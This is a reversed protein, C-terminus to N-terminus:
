GHDHRSVLTTRLDGAAAISPGATPVEHPLLDALKIALHISLRDEGDALSIGLMRELNSLRWYVTTRHIHLSAATKQANAGAALYARLTAEYIENGPEWLVSVGPCLRELSPKSREIFQFTAYVGLESWDAVGQFSSVTAAVEAAFRANGLVEKVRALEDVTSVGMAHDPSVSRLARAVVERRGQTTLVILEGDHPAGCLATSRGTRRRLDNGLRRLAASVDDRDTQLEDAVDSRVVCVVYPPRGELLDQDHVLEAAAERAPRESRVLEDVLRRATESAESEWTLREGLMRGVEVAHAQGEAIQEPSLPPDDILWLYGLRYGDDLIPIVVRGLTGLGTNPPIHVPDEAQQVRSEAIMRKIPEVTRRQLIYDIRSQDVAGIQTSIALPRFAPDDVIVSRGLREALQEVTAQLQDVLM